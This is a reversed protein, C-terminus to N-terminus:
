AWGGGPDGARADSSPDPSPRLSPIFRALAEGLGTLVLTIGHSLRSRASVATARRPPVDAAALRTEVRSLQDPYRHEGM